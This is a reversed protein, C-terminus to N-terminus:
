IFKKTKLVKKIEQILDFHEGVTYVGKFFDNDIQELTEILEKM